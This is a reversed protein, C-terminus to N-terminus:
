RGRKRSKAIDLNARIRDRLPGPNARKLAQELYAISKDIQGLEALANGASMYTVPWAIDAGVAIAKKYSDLARHYQGSQAYRDVEMQLKEVVIWRLVQQLTPQELTAGVTMHVWAPAAGAKVGLLITMVSMDLNEHWEPGAAERIATPDNPADMIRKLVPYDAVLQDFSIATIEDPAPAREKEARKGFLRDLISM